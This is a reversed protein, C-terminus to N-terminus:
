KKAKAKAPRARRAAIEDFSRHEKAHVAHRTTEAQWRRITVDVYLPDIELAHCVRGLQEAAMLTSGAGAFMDLIIDGDASSNALAKRALEVPKQNPHLADKQGHGNDRSVEWLDEAGTAAELYVAQGPTLHIHRIKRGKPPVTTLHIEADKTAITVGQGIATRLGTAPSGAAIRWVTTQDRGGYWAPRVGQRAAYFCPEHAWRYDSWGLVMQPKAWVIYGLEVLGTDRLALSYDTRTASAHWVYWAADEATHPLACAFSKRLLDALQGRRLDDGQIMEFEGSRAVYSV